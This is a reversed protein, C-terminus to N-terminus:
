SGEAVPGALAQVAGGPAQWLNLDQEPSPPPTVVAGEGPLMGPPGLWPPPQHQGEQGSWISRTGRTAGSLSASAKILSRQRDTPPDASPTVRQSGLLPWLFPENGKGRWAEKGWCGGTSGGGWVPLRPKAAELPSPLKWTEKAPISRPPRQAVAPKRLM